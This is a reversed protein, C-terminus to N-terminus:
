PAPSRTTVSPEVFIGMVTAAFLLRGRLGRTSMEYSVLLLAVSDQGLGAARRANSCVRAVASVFAAACYGNSAWTTPRAPVTGPDAQAGGVTLPSVAAISATRLPLSTQCVKTPGARSSPGAAIMM